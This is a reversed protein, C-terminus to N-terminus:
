PRVEILGPPTSHHQPDPGGPAVRDTGANLALAKRRYYGLKAEDFRMKGLALHGGFERTNMAPIDRPIRNGSSVLLMSLIVICSFWIEAKTSSAM